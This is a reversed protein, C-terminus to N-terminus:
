SVGLMRSIASITSGECRLKQPTFYCFKHRSNARGRGCKGARKLRRAIREKSVGLKEAIFPHPLGAEHLAVIQAVDLMLRRSGTLKGSLCAKALVRKQNEVNEGSVGSANAHAAEQRQRYPAASRGTCVLFISAWSTCSKPTTNM